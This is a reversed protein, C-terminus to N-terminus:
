LTISMVGVAWDVPAKSYVSQMAVSPYSVRLSQVAYSMLCDSPSTKTTISSQPIRLVWENNDNEPGIYGPTTADSITVYGYKFIHFTCIINM